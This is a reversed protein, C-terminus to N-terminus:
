TPKYGDVLESHTMKFKTIDSQTLQEVLREMGLVLAERTVRQERAKMIKPHPTPQASADVLLEEYLKELM